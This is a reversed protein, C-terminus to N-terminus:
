HNAISVTLASITGPGRALLPTLSTSSPSSDAFWLDQVFWGWAFLMTAGMSLGAEVATAGRVIAKSLHCLETFTLLPRWSPSPVSFTM